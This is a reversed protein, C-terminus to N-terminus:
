RTGARVVQLKVPRLKPEGMAGMALNDLQGRIEADGQLSDRAIPRSLIPVVQPLFEWTLGWDKPSM